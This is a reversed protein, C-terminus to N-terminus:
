LSLVFQLLLVCLALVTGGNCLLLSAIAKKSLPVRSKELKVRKWLLIVVVPTAIFCVVLFFGYLAMMCLSLIAGDNALLQSLDATTGLEELGSLGKLMETAYVGGILNIVMHLLIPYRLRGTSLYLYGFLVGLLATYFFQNLNGHALGFLLGSALIAPLTGYRRLRDIILKRYFLEELVPALIGAFLLNAWLPTALTLEELQNATEKNTLLELLKDAVAGIVNGAYTLTFCLAVLGLLILPSLRKKVTPPEAKGVSFVLLSAPMAVLYIPLTSAAISFWNQETLWPVWARVAALLLMQALFTVVTITAVGLGVSTIQLREAALDPLTPREENSQPYV